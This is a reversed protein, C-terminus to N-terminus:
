SRKINRVFLKELEELTKGKTEPVYRLVFLFGLVNFLGFFVFNIVPSFKLLSPSVLVVLFTSFWLMGSCLSLAKSRIHNPFIESLLVWVVPGLTFSFTAIYGMIFFLVLRGDIAQSNFSWALMFLFFAMLLTGMLMLKKRGVKDVLVIALVTFVLFVLIVFVANLLGDKIGINAKEFIVQMYATINNAGCFQQLVALGVGTFLLPFLNRKFLDRFTVNHGTELLSRKIETMENEAFAAGGIRSLIKGARVELKAKVLWRPSEPIYLLAFLFILSPLIAFGFMWRWSELQEPDGYYYCVISAVLIGLIITLQNVAVLKGRIAAPAIEAIYMPALVSAAGVGVGQLFRWFSLEFSNNALAAGITTGLFILATYILSKKRGLKDALIATLFTGAMCGVEFIAVVWGLLFGDLAFQKKIFPIVGTIVGLDYGFMFGGMAAILSIGLVYYQNFAIERMPYSAAIDPVILKM